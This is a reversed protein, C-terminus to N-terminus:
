ISRFPVSSVTLNSKMNNVSLFRQISYYALEQNQSPGIKVDKILRKPDIELYVYPILMNKKNRFNPKLNGDCTKFVIRYENEEHFSKNKICSLVKTTASLLPIISTDVLPLLHPTSGKLASLHNGPLTNIEKIILDYCAKILDYAEKDDDKSYFCKTLFLDKGIPFSDSLSKELTYDKSESNKGYIRVNKIKDFDFGIVVGEEQPCYGRWQSLKNPEASFSVLYIKYSNTLCRFLGNFIELEDDSKIFKKCVIDIFEYAEKTDNLYAISSLRIKENEIIAKLAGVDTYHYLIM